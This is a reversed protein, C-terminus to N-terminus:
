RQTTVPDKKYGQDPYGDCLVDDIPCMSRILLPTCKIM